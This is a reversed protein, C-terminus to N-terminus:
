RALFAEFAEMEKRYMPLRSSRRIREIKNIHQPRLNRGRRITATNRNVASRWSAYADGGNHVWFGVHANEIVIRVDRPVSRNSYFERLYDLIRQRVQTGKGYKMADSAPSVKIWPAPSGHDVHGECSGSTPIGCKNLALVLGRIRRDIVRVSAHQM